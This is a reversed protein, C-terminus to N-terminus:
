ELTDKQFLATFFDYQEDYDANRYTNIEKDYKKTNLKEIKILAMISDIQRSKLNLANKFNEKETIRLRQISDYKKKSIYEKEILEKNIKNYLHKPYDTTFSLVVLVLVVVGIIVLVIRNM